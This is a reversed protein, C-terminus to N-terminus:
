GISACFSLSDLLYCPRSSAHVSAPSEILYNARVDPLGIRPIHLRWTSLIGPKIHRNGVGHIPRQYSTASARCAMPRPFQCLRLPSAGPLLHSTCCRREAHPNRVPRPRPFPPTGSHWPQFLSAPCFRIWQLHLRPALTGLHMKQPRNIHPPIPTPKLDPRNGSRCM